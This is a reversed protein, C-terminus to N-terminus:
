YKGSLGKWNIIPKLHKVIRVSDKQLDMVKDIDKYAFPNEDLTDKNVPALIGVMADQFDELSVNMKAYKRSMVRGAGHSSSNLFKENGLGEVLYCGDRMNAPIVGREGLNSSTAGKRHLFHGDDTVVCHNHNKNCWLNEDTSYIINACERISKQVSYAMKMRNALAYDLCFNQFMMYDEAFEGIEYSAEYEKQGIAAMKMFYEGVAYGVGRSGSHIALWTEDKYTLIEIFHNGSGLTGLHLYARDEMLDVLSVHELDKQSMRLSGLKGRLTSLMYDDIILDEKKHIMGVGMPITNFVKVFLDQANEIIVDQDKKKNSILVAIVGCGIDYGVWSPIVANKTKIVSGIPAVYGTHADPMLSAAVVHDLECCTKFQDLAMQDTDESFININKM